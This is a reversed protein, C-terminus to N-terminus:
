LSSDQIKMASILYNTIEDIGIDSQVAFKDAILPVKNLVQEYSVNHWVPLLTNVGSHTYKAFMANLENIPWAKFYSPSIILIGFRSLSIAQNIEESISDGVQLQNSSYWVHKNRAELAKVLPTVIELKDQEAFSIFADYLYPSEKTVAEKVQFSKLEERYQSLNKTLQKIQLNCRKVEAPNEAIERKAEWEQMLSLGSKIRRNLHGQRITNYESLDDVNSNNSQSVEKSWIGIIELLNNRIENLEEPRPGLGKLSQKQWSQYRSSLIILHHFLILNNEEWEKQLFAFLEELRDQALLQHATTIAQNM